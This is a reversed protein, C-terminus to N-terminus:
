DAPIYCDDIDVTPSDEVGFGGVGAWVHTGQARENRHRRRDRPPASCLRDVAPESGVRVGPDFVASSTWVAPNTSVRVDANTGPAADRVRVQFVLVAHAGPGDTVSSREETRVWPKRTVSEITHVLGAHLPDTVP